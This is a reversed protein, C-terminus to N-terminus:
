SVRTLRPATDNFAPLPKPSPEKPLVSRAEPRDEDEQEEFVPLSVVFTTGRGQTSRVSIQGGM